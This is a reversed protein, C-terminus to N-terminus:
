RQVKRGAYEMVALYVPTVEALFSGFSDMNINFMWFCAAMGVVLMTLNTYPQKKMCRISIEINRVLVVAMYIIGPIGVTYITQLIGIDTIHGGGEATAAWGDLYGIGFLPQKLFENGFYRIANIRVGTTGGEGVYEPSLTYLFHQFKPTMFLGVVVVALILWEKWTAKRRTFYLVVLVSVQYIMSSRGLQIRFTFYISLILVALYVLRKWWQKAELCLYAAVPVIIGAFVSPNVRLTNNRIWGEAAGEVAISHFAVIGTKGYNWSIYIRVGYTIASCLIMWWLMTNLKLDGHILLLAVPLALFMYIYPACYFITMRLPMGGVIMSRYISGLLLICVLGSIVWLWKVQKWLKMLPRNCLMLVLLILELGLLWIKENIEIGLVPDLLKQISCAAAFWLALVGTMVQSIVSKKKIEEM